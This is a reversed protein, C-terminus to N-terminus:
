AKGYEKCGSATVEETRVDHQALLEFTAKKMAAKVAEEGFEKPLNVTASGHKYRPEEDAAIPPLRIATSFWVYYRTYSEPQFDESQDSESSNNKSQDSKSQEQM